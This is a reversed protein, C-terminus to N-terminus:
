KQHENDYFKASRPSIIMNRVTRSSKFDCRDHDYLMHIKQTQFHQSQFRRSTLHISKSQWLFSVMTLTCLEAATSYQRVLASTLGSKNQSQKMSCGNIYDRGIHTCANEVKRTDMLSFMVFIEIQLPHKRGDAVCEHIDM